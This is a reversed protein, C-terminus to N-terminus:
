VVSKELTRVLERASLKKRKLDILPYLVLQGPGHYTVQGGRDTQIVPISHPNLIHEAKGALGQTFVPPHQLLWIEDCTEATRNDTFDRMKQWTKEYDVTSLQQIILDTHM